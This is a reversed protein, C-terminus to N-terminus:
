KRVHPLTRNLGKQHGRLAINSFLFSFFCKYLMFSKHYTQRNRQRQTQRLTVRERLWNDATKAIIPLIRYQGILINIDASQRKCLQYTCSKIKIVLLLCVHSHSGNGAFTPANQLKVKPHMKTKDASQLGELLYSDESLLQLRFLYSSYSLM